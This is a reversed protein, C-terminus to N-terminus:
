VIAQDEGAAAVSRQDSAVAQFLFEVRGVGRLLVAEHLPRRVGLSRHM